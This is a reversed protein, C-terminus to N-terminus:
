AQTSDASSMSQQLQKSFDDLDAAPLLTVTQQKKQRQPLAQTEYAKKNKDKKPTLFNFLLAMWSCMVHTLAYVKMLLLVKQPDSFKTLTIFVVHSLILTHLPYNLEPELILM